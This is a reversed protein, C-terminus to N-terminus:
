ATAGDPLVFAGRADRSIPKVWRVAARPLAGYLHPFLAGDRSPEYKLAGGLAAVDVAVLLLDDADAYYRTLTGVLQEATSFHLFGDARDKASGAYTDGASTWEAAHVIKFAIM